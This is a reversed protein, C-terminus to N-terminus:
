LLTIFHWYIFHQHILEPKAEQVLFSLL